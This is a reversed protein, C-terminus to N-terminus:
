NWLMLQPGSFYFQLGESVALRPWILIRQQWLEDLHWHTSSFNNQFFLQLVERM